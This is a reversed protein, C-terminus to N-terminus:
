EYDEQLYQRVESSRRMKTILRENFREAPDIGSYKLLHNMAIVECMVTINKGPNLLVRIKPLEVELVDITEGDLGTLDSSCVDSSWDRSCRTHRRRSSFFFCSIM